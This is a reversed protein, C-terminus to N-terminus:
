FHIFFNLNLIELFFLSYNWSSISKLFDNNKSIIQALFIGLYNSKIYIYRNKEDIELEFKFKKKLM